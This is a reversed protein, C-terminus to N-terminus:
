EAMPDYPEGTIEAELDTTMEVNHAPCKFPKAQSYGETLKDEGIIRGCIPCMWLQENYDDPM